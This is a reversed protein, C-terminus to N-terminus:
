KKSFLLSNSVIFSDVDDYFIVGKNKLDTLADETSKPFVGRICSLILHVKYGLRVCDKATNYVCFDTAVGVLIINTINKTKLWNDLGTNEYKSEFEDGFASYSEINTITGKKFIKDNKMVILESHLKAGHSDKVCHVPWMDQTITRSTGDPMELELVKKKETTNHTQAFSMHNPSHYDQTLFTDIYNYCIFRLKNISALVDEGNTIALSGGKFFDNQIDIIGLIFGNDQINKCLIELINGNDPRIQITNNNGM